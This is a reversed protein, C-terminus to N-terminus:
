ALRGWGCVAVLELAWKVSVVAQGRVGCGRVSVASSTSVEKSAFELYLPSCSAGDSVKTLM